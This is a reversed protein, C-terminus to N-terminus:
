VIFDILVGNCFSFTVGGATFTNTCGTSVGNDPSISGCIWLSGVLATDVQGNLILNSGGLIISNTSGIIENTSGATISSNISNTIKHGNGSIISSDQACYLINGSGGILVGRSSTGCIYSGASNLIISYQSSELIKGYSSNIITNYSGTDILANVSGLIISNHTNCADSLISGIIASRYSNCISGGRSSVITSYCSDAVIPRLSNIIGSYCGGNVYATYTGDPGRSGLIISKNSDRICSYFSSAITGYESSGTISSQKSGLFVSRTGSAYTNRGVLDLNFGVRSILNQCSANTIIPSFAPDASSTAVIIQEFPKTTSGIIYAETSPTAVQLEIFHRNGLVTEQWLSDGGSPTVGTIPLGNVILNGDIYVTNSQNAIRSQGNIIFSNTIGAEITNNEGGIIFTNITPSNTPGVEIKNCIGGLIFSNITQSVSTTGTLNYGIRNSCGGIIQNNSSYISIENNCGGIISSYEGSLSQSYGGIINSYRGTGLISSDRSGLIVSNNSITSNNYGTVLNSGGYSIQNKSGSIINNNSKVANDFGTVVNGLGNTYNGVSSVGSVVDPKVIGVDTISEPLKIGRGKKFEVNNLVKILEVKYSQKNFPDYEIKNVRFYSTAGSSISEVYILKRYDFNLLDQPTLYFYATITKSEEGYIEEFFQEYYMTYLNNSTYGSNRFYYTLLPEQFSLDITPDTPDDLHGAYPYTNYSYYTINDFIRFNSGTIPINKKYLIRINTDVKNYNEANIVAKPDLLQSYVLRIDLNGNALKRNSLPTPSFIVDIKQENTEFENNTIYQYQGYVENYNSKYDTNLLDKDEKYTMLVRKKRDVIPEQSISKSIDLKDSWDLILNQYYFEDRPEIYIKKPDVKDQSLYLNFMKIISNIFDIQKINGPITSNLSIPQNSSLNPDIDNFFYCGDTGTITPYFDINYKTLLYNSESPTSVVGTAFLAIGVRVEIIDNNNLQGDTETNYIIQVTKREFLSSTISELEGFSNIAATRQNNYFINAGGGGFTSEGGGGGTIKRLTIYNGNKYIKCFLVFGLGAFGTNNVPTIKFDLNLIIKQKKFTTGDFSNQYQFSASPGLDTFVGQPNYFFPDSTSMTWNNLISTSIDQGQFVYGNIQQQVTLISPGAISSFTATTTIGAKFSSNFRWLDQNLITKVNTPIILNEFEESELFQSEYTYGYLRFIKNWYQKVYISPKFNENIISNQLAATPNNFLDLPNKGSNYDIWPYYYGDTYNGIWSQTIADITKYHDFESFDLDTLLANQNIQKSFNANEGYIVCNYTWHNNDDCNIKDLQIYGELVPITDVVVSCKVKIRTDYSDIAQIDFIHEFVQNNDKTGPIEVTKSYAGNRNNIQRVDAINFTVPFAVTDSLDVQFWNRDITPEDLIINGNEGTSFVIPLQLDRSTFVLSAPPPYITSASFGLISATGDVWANISKNFKDLTIVQGVQLLDTVDRNFELGLKTGYESPALYTDQFRFEDITKVKQIFLETKNAM